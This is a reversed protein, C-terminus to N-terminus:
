KTCDVRLAPAILASYAPKELWAGKRNRPWEIEARNQTPLDHGRSCPFSRVMTSLLLHHITLPICVQVIDESRSRSSAVEHTRRSTCSVPRAIPAPAYPLTSSTTTAPVTHAALVMRRARCCDLPASRISASACNASSTWNTLVRRWGRTTCNIPTHKKGPKRRGARTISRSAQLRCSISSGM